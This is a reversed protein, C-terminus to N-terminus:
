AAASFVCQNRSPLKAINQFSKLFPVGESLAVMVSRGWSRSYPREGGHSLLALDSAIVNIIPVPMALRKRRMGVLCCWSAMLVWATSPYKNVDSFTRSCYLNNEEFGLSCSFLVTSWFYM